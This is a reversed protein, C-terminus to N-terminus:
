GPSTDSQQNAAMKLENLRSQYFIIDEQLKDIAKREDELGKDTIALEKLQTHQAISNLVEVSTTDRFYLAYVQEYTWIELTSPDKSDKWDQFAKPNSLARAKGAEHHGGMTGLYVHSTHAEFGFSLDDPFPPPFPTEIARAKDLFENAKAYHANVEDLKAMVKKSLEAYKPAKGNMIKEILDQNPLAVRPDFSLGMGTDPDQGTGSIRYEGNHLRTIAFTDYVGLLGMAERMAKSAKHVEHSAKDHYLHQQATKLTRELNEAEQAPTLNKFQAAHARFTEVLTPDDLKKTM